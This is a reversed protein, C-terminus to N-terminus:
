DLEDLRPNVVTNFFSGFTYNLGVNIGARYDTALERLRLFIEEDTADGKRLSIQDRVRSYSGYVDLDLGRALRLEIGASISLRNRAWDHLFTSATGNVNINGWPQRTEYAVRLQHDVRTEELRDYITEEVYNYRMVGISYLVILQRRTAEAYPYLDWEIAPAIRARFDLNDPKSSLFSWQTGISWHPGLARAVLGFGGWEDRRATFTEGDDLEFETRDINSYFHSRIKWAETTRNASFDVGIEYGVERSEADVEGDVGISFVWFNWPDTGAIPRVDADDLEDQTVYLGGAGGAALLYRVLGLRLTRAFERRYMDDTADPPTRFIVTDTRSALAGRGIYELTVERGGAGTSLGSAIVHVDSATRDTVWDVMVIETRLYERDCNTHCDLFLRLRPIGQAPLAIPLLALCVALLGIWRRVAVDM